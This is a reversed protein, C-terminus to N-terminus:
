KQEHSLIRDILMNKTGETSLNLSQCVDKVKDINMKTLKKRNYISSNMADSIVSEIDDDASIVVESVPKNSSDPTAVPTAPVSPKSPKPTDKLDKVDTVSVIETKDPSEKCKSDKCDKPCMFISNMIMDAEEMSCKGNDCSLLSNLDKNEKKLNAVKKELIQVYCEMGYIRRWVYLGMFILSVAMLVYVFIYKPCFM